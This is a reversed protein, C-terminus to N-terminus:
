DELYIAQIHGNSGTIFYYDSGDRSRGSKDVVRGSTNVLFYSDGLEGRSAVKADTDNNNFTANFVYLEDLDEKDKNLNDIKLAEGMDDTDAYVGLNVKVMRHTVVGDDEDTDTKDELLKLLADVDDILEYTYPTDEGDGNRKVVQYKEDSGAALLKGSQYYRDDEEGTVGQGKKGGSKEFYFTFNDGGISVTQRGTRM